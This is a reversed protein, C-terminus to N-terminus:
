IRMPLPQKFSGLGGHRFYHLDSGCIGAAEVKVLMEEASPELVDEDEVEMRGVATLKAVRNRLLMAAAACPHLLCAFLPRAASEYSFIAVHGQPSISRFM